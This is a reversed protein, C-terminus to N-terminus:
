WFTTALPDLKNVFTGATAKYLAGSQSSTQTTVSTDVYKSWLEPLCHNLFIAYECHLYRWTLIALKAVTFDQTVMSGIWQHCIYPGTCDGHILASACYISWHYSNWATTDFKLLDERAQFSLSFCHVHVQVKTAKLEDMWGDMWENMWENM